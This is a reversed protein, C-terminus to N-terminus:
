KLYRDVMRAIKETGLVSKETEPLEREIKYLIDEFIFNIDQNSKLSVRRTNQKTRELLINWEVWHLDPRERKYIKALREVGQIYSRFHHASAKAPTMINTKNM